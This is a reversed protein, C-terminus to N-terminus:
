PATGLDILSPLDEAILPGDEFIPCVETVVNLYPGLGPLATNAWWTGLKDREILVWTNGSVAVTAVNYVDRTIGMPELVPDGDLDLKRYIACDAHGPIDGPGPQGTGTGTGTQSGSDGQLAPIGDPPTLAVYVEPAPMEEDDIRSDRPRGTTNRPRRKAEDILSMLVKRDSDKLFFAEAV